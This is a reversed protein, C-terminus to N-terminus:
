EGRIFICAGFGLASCHFLCCIIKLEKLETSKKKKKASVVMSWKLEAAMSELSM